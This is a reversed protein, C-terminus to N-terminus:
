KNMLFNHATNFLEDFDVKNFDTTDVKIIKGGVTFEGLPPLWNECDEYTLEAFARNAQGREPLKERANFRDCMISTDGWFIYTLSEYDYKEILAQIVAGENGKYGSM